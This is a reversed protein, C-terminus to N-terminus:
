HRVRVVSGLLNNWKGSWTCSYCVWTGDLTATSYMWVFYISFPQRSLFLCETVSTILRLWFNSLLSPISHTSQPPHLSHGLFSHEMLLINIHLYIDIILSLIDRSVSLKFMINLLVICDIIYCVGSRSSASLILLLSFENKALNIFPFCYQVHYM